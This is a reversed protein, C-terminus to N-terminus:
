SKRKILAMYFGDTGQSPWLTKEAILEFDAHTSLFTKVQEQNETPLISCTSYVMSGNPKLMKSYTSIIEQQTKKTGEIGAANLKWKADPNRKLVGLGSCPV